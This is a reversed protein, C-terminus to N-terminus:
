SDPRTANPQLINKNSNIKSILYISIGVLLVGNLQLLSLRQQLFIWGLLVATLPSLFGLSSILSTNLRAIGRFWLVYSFAAGVLSLWALAIYQQSHLSPVSPYLYLTLPLLLLGGASLQWATFTLLSVPAQWRRSLVTGCAMSVASAIGAMIGTNDLAAKPGLVLLAVGLLGILAAVIGLTRLPQQLWFYALVMVILPQIAGVTAAVGGPLRYAAIFLMAWFFSFNLCGLLAIRLWWIGQPLQRVLVLLLLGAPLARLTAVWLPPIGPLYETTVLYTSGWIVPALASILIDTYAPAKM